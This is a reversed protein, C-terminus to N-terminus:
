NFINELLEEIFASKAARYDVMLAGDFRRKLENYRENVESHAILYDRLRCFFDDPGGAVTLQIGLPPDARDDNFSSFTPSHASGTNRQYHSALVADARTFQGVTVRLQIDLDGKTLSGPVATSGIHYSKAEPLLRTLLERHHTLAIEVRKRIVLESVFRVRELALIETM